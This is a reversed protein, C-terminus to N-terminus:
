ASEKTHDFSSCLVIGDINPTEGAGLGEHYIGPQMWGIDDGMTFLINPKNDTQAQAAGAALMTAAALLSWLARRWSSLRSKRLMTRNGWKNKSKPVGARGNLLAACTCRACAARLDTWQRRYKPLGARFGSRRQYRHITTTPM